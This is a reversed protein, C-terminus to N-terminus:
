IKCSLLQTLPGRKRVLERKGNTGFLFTMLVMLSPTLWATVISSRTDKVVDTLFCIVGTGEINRKILKTRILLVQANGSVNEPKQWFMGAVTVEITANSVRSLKVFGFTM